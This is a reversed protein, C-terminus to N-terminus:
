VGTAPIGTREVPRPSTLLTTLPGVRVTVMRSLWGTDTLLERNMCKLTVCGHRERLQPM